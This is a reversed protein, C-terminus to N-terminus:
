STITTKQLLMIILFIVGFLTSLVAFATFVKKSDLTYNINTSKM